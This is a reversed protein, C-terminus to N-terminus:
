TRVERVDLVSWDIGESMWTKQGQVFIGSSGVEQWLTLHAQMLAQQQETPQAPVHTLCSRTPLFVHLQRGASGQAAGHLQLRAPRWVLDLARMPAEMQLAAIDSFALWRYAGAVMLECVPGLRTDSDALWDFAQEHHEPEGDGPARADWHCVGSRSPAQALAQHRSADALDVEGAANHELAQAMLAMWEPFDVVPAARQAGGFVKIRQNEAQILGRVLQAQAQWQPALRVWAQLQQLAREWQCLLCLTEILAWRHEPEAPERRVAAETQRIKQLLSEGQIPHENDLVTLDNM